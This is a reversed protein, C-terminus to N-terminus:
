WAHLRQVHMCRGRLVGVASDVQEDISLRLRCFAAKRLSKADSHQACQKGSPLHQWKGQVHYENCAGPVRM